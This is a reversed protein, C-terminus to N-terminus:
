AWRNRRFRWRRMGRPDVEVGVSTITGDEVERIILEIAGVRVRRHPRHDLEVLPHALGGVDKVTRGRGLPQDHFQGARETRDQGPM